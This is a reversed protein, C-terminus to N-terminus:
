YTQLLLLVLTREVWSSTDVKETVTTDDYVYLFGPIADVDSYGVLLLLGGAKHSLAHFLIQM